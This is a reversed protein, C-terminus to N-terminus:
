PTHPNPTDDTCPTNKNQYRHKDLLDILIDLRDDPSLEYILDWIKEKTLHKEHEIGMIESEKPTTM